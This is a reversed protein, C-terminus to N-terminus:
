GAPRRLLPEALPPAALARGAPAALTLAAAEGKSRELGPKGEQAM